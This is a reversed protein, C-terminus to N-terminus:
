CDIFDAFEPMAKLQTYGKTFLNDSPTAGEIVSYFQSLINMTPNEVQAATQNAYLSVVMTYSKRPNAQIEEIRVYCDSLTIGRWEYTGKIAM